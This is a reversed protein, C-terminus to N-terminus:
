LISAEKLGPTTEDGEPVSKESNIIKERRGTLRSLEADVDVFTVSWPRSYGLDRLLRAQRPTALGRERRARLLDFVERVIGKNVLPWRPVGARVLAEVQASSPPSDLYSDDFRLPQRTLFRDLDLLDLPSGRTAAIASLKRRLLEVTTELHM